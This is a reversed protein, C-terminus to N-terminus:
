RPDQDMRWGGASEPPPTYTQAFMSPTLVIALLTLCVFKSRM